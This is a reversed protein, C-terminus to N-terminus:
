LITSNVAVCIYFSAHMSIYWEKQKSVLVLAVYLLTFSVGAIDLKLAEERAADAKKPLLQQWLFLGAQVVFYVPKNCRLENISQLILQGELM